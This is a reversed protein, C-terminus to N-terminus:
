FSRKFYLNKLIKIDSPQVDHFEKAFLAKAELILWDIDERTKPSKMPIRKVTTKGKKNYSKFSLECFDIKSKKAAKFYFRLEAIYDYSWWGEKILGMRYLVTPDTQKHVTKFGCEEIYQPTLPDEMSFISM